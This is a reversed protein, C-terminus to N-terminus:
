CSPMMRAGSSGAGGPVGRAAAGGSSGGATKELDYGNRTPGFVPNFTHSGAGFEPVNTKGLFVAGAARIREVALEFPYPDSGPLATDEIGIGALGAFALM